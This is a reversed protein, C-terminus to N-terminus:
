EKGLPEQIYHVTILITPNANYKKAIYAVQFDEAQNRAWGCVKLWIDGVTM